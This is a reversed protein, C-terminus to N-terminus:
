VFAPGAILKTEVGNKAWEEVLETVTQPALPLVQILSLMDMMAKQENKRAKQLVDAIIDMEEPALGTEASRIQIVNQGFAVEYVNDQDTPAPFERTKFRTSMSMKQVPSLKTRKLAEKLNLVESM